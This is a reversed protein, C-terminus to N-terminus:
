YVSFFTYLPFTCPFTCLTHQAMGVWVMRVFRSLGSYNLGYEGDFKIMLEKLDNPMQM